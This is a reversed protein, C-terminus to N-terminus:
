CALWGWWSSPCLNPVKNLEWTFRFQVAALKEEVELKTYAEAPAAPGEPAAGYLWCSM